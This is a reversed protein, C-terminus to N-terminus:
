SNAVFLCLYFIAESRFSRAIVSYRNQLVRTSNILHNNGPQKTPARIPHYSQFILILQEGCHPCSLQKTPKDNKCNLPLHDKFLSKIYDLQQRNNSGLFGFYRIKVFGHPLVHQLFRQIFCLVDLTNLQWNGTKGDKYKFTVKRNELNLIRNNSIAIRYVYPALYKITQKGTGVPKCHVVWDNHWTSQSIQNALNSKVLLEKFKARFIVSLAKVPLLFSQYRAPIWKLKDPSLGGAPILYHIHPHYRLDRTWTHLIGMFGIDAGLYKHDRALKKLAAASSKFLINYFLKQNAKAWLRLERPLTFTVLFYPVPLLFLNQKEIWLSVQENQCKPCNRDGCSYYSFHFRQCKNCRYIEGGFTGTRCHQIRFIVKKHILPIRNRYKELYESGHLRFIDALEPM